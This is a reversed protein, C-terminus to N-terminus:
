ERPPGAPSGPPGPREPAADDPPGRRGAPPRQPPESFLFRQVARQEGPSLKRYFSWNMMQEDREAAPMGRWEAIRRKLAQRREPPLEKWNGFFKRIAAKEDPWANRYIERRGRLYNRESEPLERWRRRRDLIREKQEQPLEKWRHYRERVREREEPSMRRWREMREPTVEGPRTDRFKEPGGGRSRSDAASGSPVLCLALAFLSACLAKKATGGYAELSM